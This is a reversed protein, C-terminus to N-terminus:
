PGPPRRLAARPRTWRGTPTTRDAATIRDWQNRRDCSPAVVGDPTLVQMKAGPVNIEGPDYLSVLFTKGKHIPDVQALYFNPNVSLQNNFM